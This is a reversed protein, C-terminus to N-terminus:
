KCLLKNLRRRHNLDCNPLFDGAGRFVAGGSANGRRGGREGELWPMPPRSVGGCSEGLPPTKGDATLRAAQSSRSASHARGSSPRYLFGRAHRPKLDDVSTESRTLAGVLWPCAVPRSM